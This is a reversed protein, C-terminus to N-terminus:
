PGALSGRLLVVRDGGGAVLGDPGWRKLRTLLFLTHDAFRGIFAFSTYHFTQITEAALFHVRGHAADPWVTGGAAITGVRNMSPVEIVVGTESYVFGGDYEIDAVQDILGEKVIEETLGDAAVFISRFGFETSETNYGYIRTSTPGRVIRNSGTHRQTAKPRMVGDDYM